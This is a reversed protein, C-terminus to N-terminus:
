VREAALLAEAPVNVPPATISVWRIRYQRPAYQFIFISRSTDLPLVVQYFM